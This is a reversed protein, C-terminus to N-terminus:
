AKGNTNWLTNHEEYDSNDNDDEEWDNDKLGFLEQLEKVIKLRDANRTTFEQMAAYKAQEYNM